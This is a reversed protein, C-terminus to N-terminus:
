SSKKGSAFWAYVFAFLGVILSVLGHKFHVVSSGAEFGPMFSPLSGAPTLWYVLALAVFLIGVIIGVVVGYKKMLETYLINATKHFLIMSVAHDRM